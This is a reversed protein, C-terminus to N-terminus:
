LSGAVQAILEIHKMGSSFYLVGVHKLQVFCKRHPRVATFINKASCHQRVHCEHPISILMASPPHGIKANTLDVIVMNCYTWIIRERASNPMHPCSLRHTLSKGTLPM